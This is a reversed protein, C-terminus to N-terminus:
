SMTQLKSVCLSMSRPILGPLFCIWFARWTGSDAFTMLMRVSNYRFGRLAFDHFSGLYVPPLLLLLMCCSKYTEWLSCRQSRSVLSKMPRSNIESLRRGPAVNSIKLEPSRSLCGHLMQLKVYCSLTEFHPMVRNMPKFSFYYWKLITGLISVMMGTVESMAGIFTESSDFAVFCSAPSRRCGMPQSDSIAARWSDLNPRWRPIWNRSDTMWTEFDAAPLIHWSSHSRAAGLSPLIMWLFPDSHCEHAPTKSRHIDRYTYIYTYIYVIMYWMYLRMHIYMYIYICVHFMSIAEYAYMLHMNISINGRHLELLEEVITLAAGLRAKVPSPWLTCTFSVAAATASAERRLPLGEPSSQATRFQYVM